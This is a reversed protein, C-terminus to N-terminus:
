IKNDSRSKTKNSNWKKEMKNSNLYKWYVKMKQEIYEAVEREWWYPNQKEVGSYRELAELAEENICQKIYEYHKSINNFQQYRSKNDLRSEYLNKVSEQELSGLNM